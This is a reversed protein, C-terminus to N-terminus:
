QKTRLDEFFCFQARIMGVDPDVWNKIRVMGVDYGDKIPKWTHCVAGHEGNRRRHEAWSGHVVRRLRTPLSRPGLQLRFDM